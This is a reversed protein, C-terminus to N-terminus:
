NKPAPKPKEDAKVEVLKGSKLWAQVGAMAVAEAPLDAEAGPAIRTRGATLTASHKNVFRM